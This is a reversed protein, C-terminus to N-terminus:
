TVGEKMTLEWLRTHHKPYPLFGVAKIFGKHRLAVLKKNLVTKNAGVGLSIEPTSLIRNEERFFDLIKQQNLLSM